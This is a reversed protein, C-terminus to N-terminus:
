RSLHCVTECDVTSEKLQTAALTKTDELKKLTKFVNEQITRDFCVNTDHLLM